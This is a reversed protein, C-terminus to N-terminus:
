NNHLTRNRVPKLIHHPLVSGPREYLLQGIGTLTLFWQM